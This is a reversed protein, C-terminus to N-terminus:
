FMSSLVSNTNDYFLDNSLCFMASVIIDDKQNDSINQTLLLM